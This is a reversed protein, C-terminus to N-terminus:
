SNIFTEGKMWDRLLTSEDIRNDDLDDAALASVAAKLTDITILAHEIEESSFTFLISDAAEIGLRSARLPHIEAYLSAADEAIRDFSERTIDISSKESCGALLLLLILAAAANRIFNNNM